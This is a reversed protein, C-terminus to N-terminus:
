YSRTLFSKPSQRQTNRTSDPLVFVSVLTFFIDRARQVLHQALGKARMAARSRADHDGFAAAEENHRLEDAVRELFQINVSRQEGSMMSGAAFAAIGAAKDRMLVYAYAAEAFYDNSSEAPRLLASKLRTFLSM